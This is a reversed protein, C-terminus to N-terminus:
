KLKVDHWSPHVVFLPDLQIARRSIEFAVYIGQQGRWMKGFLCDGILHLSDLESNRRKPKAALWVFQVFELFGCLLCIQQGADSKPLDIEVDDDNDIRSLLVGSLVGQPNTM